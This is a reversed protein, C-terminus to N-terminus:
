SGTVEEAVRAGYGLEISQSTVTFHGDIGQYPYRLDIIDSVNVDPHYRRDYSATVYRRQEEKLRRLSYDALSENQNLNCSTEEIWIERGRSVTSLVSEPDDDRAIAFSDGSVARFINPCSYWDYTKKIQPEIVDNQLPDFTTVPETAQPCIIIAGNGDIKLRWNIAQLIKEIMTLRTEGDEAIISASLLPSTGEIEVPAPTASLLNKILLAGNGGSPAYYGRQLLVDDVPKLVSYLQVQNTIYYGDIDDDPSSTIGTFLPINESDNGQRAILHIRVWKEGSDFRVCNLDASQRLKSITRNISGGTIDFRELSRWTRPDVFCAYYLASFGENWNM